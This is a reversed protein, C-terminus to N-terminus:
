ATEVTLRKSCTLEVIMQGLAQVMAWTRRASKVSRALRALQPVSLASSESIRVVSGNPTQPIACARGYGDQELLM